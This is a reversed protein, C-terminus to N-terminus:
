ALFLGALFLGALFLGALFLGALLPGALFPRSLFLGVLLPGFAGAGLGFALAPGDALGLLGQGASVPGDVGGVGGFRVPLIGDAAEFHLQLVGLVRQGVRFAPGPLGAGRLPLGALGEVPQAVASM